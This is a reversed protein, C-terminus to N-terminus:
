LVHDLISRSNKPLERVDPIHYRCNHIDTVFLEHEGAHAINDSRGKVYFTSPGRSTQVDWCMFGFESEVANVETIVPVSYYVELEKELLRRTDRDYDGLDEIIGLEEGGDERVSIFESPYRIPFLRRLSVRICTIRNDIVARLLGNETLVFSCNDPNLYKTTSDM